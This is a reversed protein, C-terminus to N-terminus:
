IQINFNEVNKKIDELIKFNWRHDYIYENLAYM